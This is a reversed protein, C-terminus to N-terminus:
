TRGSALPHTSSRRMLARWPRPRCPIRAGSRANSAPAPWSRATTVRAPAARDDPAGVLTARAVDVDEVAVLLRQEVDRDVDGIAGDGGEDARRAAALGREQAADVAHVVRDVAAADGARELDFALVGVGPVDIRHHQARADAHHELLRVRERFRDVLVDGVARADVAHGLGLASMSPMTSFDSRRAPRQSSTFSRRCWGPVPREPPWCCRRTM